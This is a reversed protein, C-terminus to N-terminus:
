NVDARYWVIRDTINEGAARAYVTTTADVRRLPASMLVPASVNALLFAGPKLMAGVNAMALAQEVVDYYIFVNTAIVLDFAADDLREAVINLDLVSLRQVASPRVRVARLDALEAMAKPASAQAPAGIRDGFTKWYARLEPLWPTSRPLALNLTYGVTKAARARARTVHDIVRPSIDLLVIDPDGAAPALGLRELSDLVAFPQVTQQPFVDFGVDKDAIDLGPGVIAVRRVTGAGLVGRAKMAALAQEVSHNTVLSTDLSLGRTRFLRSRRVFETDPDAGSTAALEQDIQDQENAVRIVAAM